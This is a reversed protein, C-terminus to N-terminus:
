IHMDKALFGQQKIMKANSPYYSKNYFNAIRDTWGVPNEGRNKLYEKYTDNYNEIFPQQNEDYKEEQLVSKLPLRPKLGPDEDPYGVCLGAIPIVYTPLQLFEIVQLSNRRIGGIPVTGLGLSEAATIANQMALGVDTAGILLTDIDEIAKFDKGEMESALKARYFDACFVLFAPSNDVHKQNGCLEALRKKRAENRILIATVHQGNTWSPAAQAAEMILQLTEFTVEKDQYKRYSRHNKLQQITENM